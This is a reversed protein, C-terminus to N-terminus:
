ISKISDAAKNFESIIDRNKELAEIFIKYLAIQSDKITDIRKMTKIADLQEPISRESNMDALLKMYSLNSEFLKNIKDFEKFLGNTINIVCDTEKNLNHLRRLRLNLFTQYLNNKAM